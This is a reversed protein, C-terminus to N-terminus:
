SIIVQCLAVRDCFVALEAIVSKKGDSTVSPRQFFVSCSVYIQTKLM